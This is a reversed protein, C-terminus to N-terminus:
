QQGIVVLTIAVATIAVAVGWVIRSAIGGIRVIRRNELSVKWALAKQAEISSTLGSIATTLDTNAARAKELEDEATRRVLREQDCEDSIEQRADREQDRENRLQEVDDDRNYLKAVLNEIREEYETLQAIKRSKELAHEASSVMDRHDFALKIEDLDSLPVFRVEIADDGAQIGLRDNLDDLCALHVVSAVLGRPERGPTDYVGIKALHDVLIDLGTEERLERVAAAHSTEGLDVDGGPLAWIGQDWRRQILLVQERWIVVINTTYHITETTNTM